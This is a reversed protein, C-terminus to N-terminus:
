VRETAISGDYQALRVLGILGPFVISFLAAAAAAEFIDATVFSRTGVTVMGAPASMFMAPYQLAMGLWILVPTLWFGRHAVAGTGRFKDAVLAFVQFVVWGLFLWGLYNVLPVGFQGSPSQYTWMRLVASGIPDYPYDYGALIFSAVIPTVFRRMSAPGIGGADVVLRGIMWAYWGLVVYGIVVQPPVGLPKPGPVNHHYFGFPFGHAISNAELGFSIVAVIVVYAGFGAWGYLLSAQLVFVLLLLLAAIGQAAAALKPSVHAVSVLFVVIWVCALGWSAILRKSGADQSGM